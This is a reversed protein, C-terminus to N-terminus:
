KLCEELQYNFLEEKVEESCIIKYDTIGQESLFQALQDPLLHKIFDTYDITHTNFEGNTSELTVCYLYNGENSQSRDVYVNNM